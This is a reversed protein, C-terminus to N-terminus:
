DQHLEDNGEVVCLGRRVNHLVPFCKGGIVIISGLLTPDTPHVLNGSMTVEDVGLSRMRLEASQATPQSIGWSDLKDRACAMSVMEDVVQEPTAEVGWTLITEKSSPKEVWKLLARGKPDGVLLPTCLPPVQAELFLPPNGKMKVIEVLPNTMTKDKM